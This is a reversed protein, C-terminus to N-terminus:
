STSTFDDALLGRATADDGALHAAFMRRGVDTNSM